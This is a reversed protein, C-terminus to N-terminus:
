SSFHCPLTTNNIVYILIKDGYFCVAKDSISSINDLLLPQVGLLSGYSSYSSCTTMFCNNVCTFYNLM